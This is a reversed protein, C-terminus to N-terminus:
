HIHVQRFGYQLAQAVYRGPDRHAWPGPDDIKAQWSSARLSSPMVNIPLVPNNRYM